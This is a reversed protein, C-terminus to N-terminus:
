CFGWLRRTTRRQNVLARFMLLASNWHLHSTWCVCGRLLCCFQLGWRAFSELETLSPSNSLIGKTMNHFINCFGAAVTVVVSCRRVKLTVKVLKMLLSLETWCLDMLEVVLPKNPSCVPLHPHFVPVASRHPPHATDTGSSFPAKDPVTLVVSYLSCHSWWFTWSQSHKDRLKLTTLCHDSIHAM